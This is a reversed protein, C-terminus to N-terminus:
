SAAEATPLVAAPPEAAALVDATVVGDGATPCADRTM